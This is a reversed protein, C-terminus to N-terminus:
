IREGAMAGRPDSAEKEIIFVDEWGQERMDRKLLSFFARADTADGLVSYIDVRGEFDAKTTNWKGHHVGSIQKYGGFHETLRAKLWHLRTEAVSPGNETRLPVYLDYEKM